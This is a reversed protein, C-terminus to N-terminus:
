AEEGKPATPQQGEQARLLREHRYMEQQAKPEAWEPGAVETVTPGQLRARYGWATDQRRYRGRRLWLGTLALLGVVATVMVLTWNTRRGIEPVIAVVAKEAVQGTAVIAPKVATEGIVSALDRTANLFPEPDALFAVLAAAIALEAKHNWVFTLAADGYRGIVALVEDCRGIRTLVGDEVLMALRRGGQAGVAKLANVASTGFQEVVPEALGPHECLVRACDDGHRAVLAMGKPRAVVWVAGPEGHRALVRVAQPGHIGAQDVLHFARPGVQRVAKYFDDGHRAAYGEIRRALVESGEQVAQRGFRQLVYEAAEVAARSRADAWLPNAAAMVLLVGGVLVSRRM